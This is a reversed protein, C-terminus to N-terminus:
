FMPVWAPWALYVNGAEQGKGYPTSNSKSQVIHVENTPVVKRLQTIIYFLVL